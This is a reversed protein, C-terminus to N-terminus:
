RPLLTGAPAEKLADLLAQLRQQQEPLLGGQKLAAQWWAVHQAPGDSSASRGEMAEKLARLKLSQRAAQREATAPLGLAMELRLLLDEFAQQSLAASAATRAWRPALAQEWAAPLQPLAAWRAQLEPSPQAALAAPSDAEQEQCLQLKAALTSCQALWHQQQAQSVLALALERAKRYRPELAQGAGRPLEGGQRWARDVETLTAQLEPLATAESLAQLQAILSEAHALNAALEADRAAVGADRQAFVADTAAKFRAWLANELGRPLPLQRAQDQWQTQLDRVGRAADPVAGGQGASPNLQEARAILQERQEAASARAAQLPSELRALAAHLREQLRGQAAHPATHELPGLKRWATQFRDLERTLAKWDPAAGGEDSPLPVAELTALLAEREALNVERAQKLTALQAALPAYAVQLAADFRHWQAQTAAASHRDLEKWRQRLARISDNHAKLNLKPPPLLLPSAAPAPAASPAFAAPEALPQESSSAESGESATSASASSASASALAAEDLLAAQPMDGDMSNVTESVTESVAQAVPPVPDRLPAPAVEVPLTQRALAEAEDALDDRARAGGWQQWDKLRGQEAWLAQHREQLGEPLTARAKALLNDMAQLQRQMEGLQGEALATEALQLLGELAQQQEPGLPQWRPPKPPRAAAAALPAAEASQPPSVVAATPRHLQVWQQHRQNLAAALTPNLALAATPNAPLEGEAAPVSDLLQLHAQVAETHSLAQALAAALAQTSLQAATTEDKPQVNSLAALVESLAQAADTNGPEASALLRAPWAALLGKSDATWRKLQQEANSRALTQTELRARLEAFTSTQTAELAHSPLAQWAKDLDVLQNIALQPENLLAQTQDLLTQATARAQRQQVAAELRQKALRHVKRDANRLAREAQKLVAESALAQVAALKIDLGTANQAVTLLAADDGQARQLEAAWDVAPAAPKKPAPDPAPAANAAQAAAKRKDAARETTKAPPSKVTHGYKKFLWDLM